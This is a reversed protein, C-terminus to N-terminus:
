APPRPLLVSFVSGSGPWSHVRMEHGLLDSQKKVLALGLGFGVDAGRATDDFRRYADFLLPIYEAAIGPGTDWVQVEVLKGRRRAGVLVSGRTTYRVANGVLNDLISQLMKLDSVVTLGTNVFRLNLGKEIAKDAQQARTYDFLDSLRVLRRHPHVEGTELRSLELLRTLQANIAALALRSNHALRRLEEGRAGEAERAHGELCATFMGLAQVPQKLDHSVGALFLSRSHAVRTLENLLQDKELQLLFSQCLTKRTIRGYALLVLLYTTLMIGGALYVNGGLWLSKGIFPLLVAAAHLPFAGRLISLPTVAGGTVGIIVAITVYDLSALNGYFAIWALGGWGLGNLAIFITSQLEARILGADDLEEIVRLLRLNWIWRAANVLVPLGLWFWIGSEGTEHWFLTAFAVAIVLNAVVMGPLHQSYLGLSLRRREGELAATPISSLRPESSL